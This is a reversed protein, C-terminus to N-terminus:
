EESFNQLVYAEGPIRDEPSRNEIGIRIRTFEKTGLREEVSTIGNHLKPGVAKQIHFKGLPIDLDDHAIFVSELPIKYFDMIKKVAEGSRNMFTQPKAFLITKGDKKVMPLESQLTKNFRFEHVRSGTLENVYFDVFMYGVNHRNNEYKKGPNGLGVILIM